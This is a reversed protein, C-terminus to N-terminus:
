KNMIHYNLLAVSLIAVALQANIFRQQNYRVISDQVQTTLVLQNEPMNENDLSSYNLNPTENVLASYIYSM